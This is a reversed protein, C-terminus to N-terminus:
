LRDLKWADSEPCEPNTCNYQLKMPMECECTMSPPSIIRQELWHIYTHHGEKDVYSNNGTEKVYLNWLDDATM